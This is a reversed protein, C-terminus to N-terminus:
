MEAQLANMTVTRSDGCSSLDRKLSLTRLISNISGRLSHCSVLGWIYLKLDTRSACSQIHNFDQQLRLLISSFFLCMFTQKPVKSVCFTLCHLKDFLTLPHCFRELLLCSRVVSVSCSMIHVAWRPVTFLLTWLTFMILKVFRDGLSTLVHFLCM